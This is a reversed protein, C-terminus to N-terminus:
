TEITGTYPAKAKFTHMPLESMDWYPERELSRTDAGAIFEESPTGPWVLAAKAKRKAKASGGTAAASTATASTAAPAPAPAVAASSPLGRSAQVGAMVERLKSVQDSLSKVTELTATTGESGGGADMSVGGRAPRTGRM